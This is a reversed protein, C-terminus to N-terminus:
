DAKVLLIRFDGIKRGLCHQAALFCAPLGILYTVVALVIQKTQPDLGLAVFILGLVLGASVTGVVSYVILRWAFEVFLRLARGATPKLTEM